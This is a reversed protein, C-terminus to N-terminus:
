EGANGRPGNWGRTDSNDRRWAPAVLSASKENRRAPM